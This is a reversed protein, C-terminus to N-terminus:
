CTSLFSFTCEKEPVNIYRLKKENAFKIHLVYHYTYITAIRHM